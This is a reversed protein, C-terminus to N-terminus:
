ANSNSDQIITLAATYRNQRDALGNTGGNIKRTIAEVDGEDALENLNRVNWFWCASKVAMDMDNELSDPDDLLREDGFLSISCARYNDKGTIQIPGRGRYKWGDGSREDGNGMRGGYVKNAIMEPKREYRIATDYTFRNPWTAVLSSARYNLNEHLATYNMSEHGTQALFAAVREITSIDFEQLNNFLAAYWDELQQNNKLIETLQDLTFNFNYPTM